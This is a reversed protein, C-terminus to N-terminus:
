NASRSGYADQHTGRQKRLAGAGREHHESSRMHSL